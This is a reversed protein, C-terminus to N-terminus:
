TGNNERNFDSLQEGEMEIKCLCKERHGDESNEIWGSGDCMKHPCPDDPYTRDTTSTKQKM